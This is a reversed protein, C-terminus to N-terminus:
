NKLKFYYGKLHADTLNIKESSEADFVLEYGKNCIYNILKTENLIWCPYQADYISKHVKQITIRDSHTLFVPTRDICIHAIQHKTIEDLLQYPHEIYQLVSGLLLLNIQQEKLCEDITYYFNLHDDAFTQKGETVFHKQEVINWTFDNLHTFLKKNQYYASGLSGGFDLVKLTAKENLATLSLASLLPFSYHIKDFIVSDREFVADGNKVKILADKVKNFILENDYGTCKNEAEQWLSYNGSWGYFFSSLYKLAIPPLFEKLM